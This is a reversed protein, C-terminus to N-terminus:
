LVANMVVARQKPYWSLEAVKLKKNQDNDDEVVVAVVDVVVM